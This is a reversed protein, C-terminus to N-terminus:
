RLRWACEVFRLWFGLGGAGVGAVFRVWRSSSAITVVVSDVSRTAQTLWDFGVAIQLAQLSSRVRSAEPLWEKQEVLRVWARPGWSSKDSIASLSDDSTERLSGLKV